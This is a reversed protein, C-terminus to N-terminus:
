GQNDRSINEEAHFDTLMLMVYLYGSVMFEGFM